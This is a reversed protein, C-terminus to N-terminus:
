NRLRSLAAVVFAYPTFVWNSTDVGFPAGVLDSISRGGLRWEGDAWIGWLASTSDGPYGYIGSDFNLILPYTFAISALVYLGAILTARGHADRVNM